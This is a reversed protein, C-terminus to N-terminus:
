LVVSRCQRSLFSPNVCRIKKKKGKSQTDKKENEEEEEEKM